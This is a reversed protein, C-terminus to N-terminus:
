QSSICSIGELQLISCSSCTSDLWWCSSRLKRSSLKITEFCPPCCRLRGPQRCGKSRKRLANIPISVAILVCLDARRFCDAPPIASCTLNVLLEQYSICSVPPGRTFMLINRVSVENM